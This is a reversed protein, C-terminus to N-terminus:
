IWEVTKESLLYEKKDGDDYLVVHKGTCSDYSQIEGAYFKHKAWKVRLRRGILDEPSEDQIKKVLSALDADTSEDESSRGYVVLTACIFSGTADTTGALLDLATQETEVSKCSEDDVLLWSANEQQRLLTVYHGEEEISGGESVHLIGGLLHLHHNTGNLGLTLTADLSLPVEVSANRLTKDGNKDYGFRELHFFCYRPLREFIMSKTTTWEVESPGYAPNTQFNQEQISENYSEPKQTEWNYGQVIEAKISQEFAQPLSSYQGVLAFPCPLRKSKGTKERCVFAIKEHQGHNELKKGTISHRMWGSTCLDILEAWDPSQQSIVKLLIAIATTADGVDQPDLSLASKSSSSSFNSLSKFLVSPDVAESTDDDLLAQLLSALQSLIRSPHYGHDKTLAQSLPPLAHFLIQLACSIHCSVGSVNQIGCIAM